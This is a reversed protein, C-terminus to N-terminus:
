IAVVMRMATMPPPMLPQQAAEAIAAERVSAARHGVSSTVTNSLPRPTPPRAAVLRSSTRARPEPRPPLARPSSPVSVHARPACM